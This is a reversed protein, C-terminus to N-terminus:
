KGIAKIIREASRALTFETEVLKQANKGIRARLADDDLLEHIKAATEKSKTFDTKFGTHGEIVMDSTAGANTSSLSTLGAAMAENLVLGWIDSKTHFLFVDTQALYQPLDNKQVFGPFLVHDSLGLTFTIKQLEGKQEGDGIIHLVFDKRLKLLEAAVNLLTENDKRETLYSISTLQKKAQGNQQERLRLTETEFFTTDVTNFSIHVKEPAVGLYNTLYDRAMTGYCIFGTSFMALLKRWFQKVVRLKGTFPSITGSWIFTRYRSFLGMWLVKATAASFGSVIVWSPHEAKLKKALGQYLFRVNEAKGVEIPKADLFEHEFQFDLDELKFRRHEYGRAAFLVKFAIEKKLLQRHLENFLPVRYPNPINTVLVLKQQKM